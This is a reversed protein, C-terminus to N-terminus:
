RFRWCGWSVAAVGVRVGRSVDAGATAAGTRKDSGDAAVLVRVWRGQSALGGTVQCTLIKKVPILIDGAAGAGTM